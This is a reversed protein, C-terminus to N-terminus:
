RARKSASRDRTEVKSGIPYRTEYEGWLGDRDWTVGAPARYGEPYDYAAQLFHHTYRDRSLVRVTGCLKCTARYETIDLTDGRTPGYQVRVYQRQQDRPNPFTHRRSLLCELFEEPLAKYVPDRLPKSM